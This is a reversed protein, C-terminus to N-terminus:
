RWETLPRRQPPVNHPNPSYNAKLRDSITLPILSTIDGVLNSEAEKSTISKISQPIIHAVELFAMNDREPMLSNGADDKVDEGDRKYRNEAEEADFKRSIVCRYRDRVLCAKRLNSLRELTGITDHEKSQSLAPSPQPTKGALAKM